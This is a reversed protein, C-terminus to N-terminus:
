NQIRFKSNQIEMEDGPLSSSDFPKHPLRGPQWRGTM